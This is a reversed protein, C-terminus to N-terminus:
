VCTGTQKTMHLKKFALTIIVVNNKKMWKVLQGFHPIKIKKKLKGILRYIKLLFFAQHKCRGVLIIVQGKLLFSHKTSGEYM